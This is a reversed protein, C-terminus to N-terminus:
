IVLCFYVGWRKPSNNQQKIVWNIWTWLCPMVDWGNGAQAPNHCDSGKVGLHQPSSKMRVCDTLVDSSFTDNSHSAIVNGIERANRFKTQVKESLELSCRAGLMLDWFYHQWILANGKSTVDTPLTDAELNM